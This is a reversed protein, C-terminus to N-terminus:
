TRDTALVERPLADVDESRRRLIYIRHHGDEGKTMGYRLPPIQM